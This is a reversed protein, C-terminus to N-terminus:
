TPYRECQPLITAAIRLQVARFIERTRAFFLFEGCVPWDKRNLYAYVENLLVDDAIDTIRM